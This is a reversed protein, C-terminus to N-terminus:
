SGRQTRQIEQRLRRASRMLQTALRLGFASAEATQQATATAPVWGTVAVQVTATAPVRGTAMVQVKTLVVV